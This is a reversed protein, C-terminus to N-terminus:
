ILLNVHPRLEQTFDERFYNFLPLKVHITFDEWSLILAIKVCLDIHDKTTKYLQSPTKCWNKKVQFIGSLNLFLLVIVSAPINRRFLDM